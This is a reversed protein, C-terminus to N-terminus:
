TQSGDEFLPNYKMMRRGIGLFNSQQGYFECDPITKDCGERVTIQQGDWDPPPAKSLRLQASGVVQKLILIALGEREVFGRTYRGNGGGADDNALSDLNLTRGNGSISTITSVTSGVTARCFGQGFLAPCRDTTKLGLSIGTFEEKTGSLEVRVMGARGRHRAKTVAITGTWRLVPSAVVDSLDIEYYKATVPAHRNVIMSAIPEKDIPIDLTGGADKVGGHQSEIELELEPVATWFQGSGDPLEYDQDARIYRTLFPAVGTHWSFEVAPKFRVTPSEAPM